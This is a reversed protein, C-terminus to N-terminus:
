QGSQDRPSIGPRSVLHFRRRHHGPYLGVARFRLRRLQADAHRRFRLVIGMTGNRGPLRRSETPLHRDAGGRGHRGGRHRDHPLLRQAALLRPDAPVRHRGLRWGLVTQRTRSHLRHVAGPVSGHGVAPRLAAATRVCRALGTRGCRSAGSSSRFQVHLLVTRARHRGLNLRRARSNNRNSPAGRPEIRSGTSRRASVPRSRTGRSM